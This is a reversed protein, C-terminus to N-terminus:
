NNYFDIYQQAVKIHNHHRIYAISQRSLTEICEPHQVLKVLEEYVSEENPQVNIIPRLEKEGLIEYNEPEGGSIVVLGQAMAQLANMAPTYSYLQDLLVHSDNLMQVYETFPVSEAVRIECRDPYETKVRELALLMIDTGKYESRTKQVGLFFKVVGDDAKRIAQMKTNEKIPFPIFRLKDAFYPEYSAYYEYLGAIIGDCDQAIKDNLKGKAGLLWENRWQTNDKSERITSGINFDSYRFTHCDTGAKVWYKDMGYAAMFVKGNHCRLYRYFPMIREAKLDLFVPNIIQVVDYGILRRFVYALRFLYLISGIGRLLFSDSERWKRVISIDRCYGKWRDGDSVVTVKHGLARLGEALTWHVNSYEGLLLINM